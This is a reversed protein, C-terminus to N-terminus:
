LVTKEGLKIITDTKNEANRGIWWCGILATKPAMTTADPTVNSAIGADWTLIGTGTRAVRSEM